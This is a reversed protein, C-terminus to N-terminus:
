ECIASAAVKLEFVWQVIAGVAGHEVIRAETQGDALIVALDAPHSHQALVVYHLMSGFHVLSLTGVLALEALLVEQPEVVQFHM